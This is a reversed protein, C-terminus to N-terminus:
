CKNGLLFKWGARTGGQIEKRDIHFERRLVNSIIFPVIRLDKWKSGISGKSGKGINKKGSFRPWEVTHVRRRYSGPLYLDRISGM